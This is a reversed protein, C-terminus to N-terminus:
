FRFNWMVLPGSQYYSTLPDENPLDWEMHRYGVVIDNRGFRYGVGLGAQWTLDSQGAGIDLIWPMFWNENFRAEGNLGIVADWYDLTKDISRAVKGGDLDLNTNLQLYRVGFTGYMTYDPTNVVRYGGGFSVTTSQVNIKGDVDVGPGGGPNITFDNDKGVDAYALEGYGMWDGNYAKLGGMLAFNLNEFLVDFGVSFDEGTATEGGIETGWLYLQLQYTWGSDAAGQTSLTEKQAAEQAVAMPAVAVLAIVAVSSLFSKM